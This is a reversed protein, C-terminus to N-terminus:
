SIYIIRKLCDAKSIHCLAVALVVDVSWCDKMQGRELSGEKTIGRHTHKDWNPM